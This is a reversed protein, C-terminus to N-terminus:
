KTSACDVEKTIVFPEHSVKGTGGGSTQSGAGAAVRDLQQESLEAPRSDRNPARVFPTM